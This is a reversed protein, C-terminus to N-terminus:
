RPLYLISIKLVQNKVVPALKRTCVLSKVYWLVFYDRLTGDSLRPAWNVLQEVFENNMLGMLIELDVRGFKGHPTTVSPRNHRWYFTLLAWFVNKASCYNEYYFTNIQFQCTDSMWVSSTDFIFAGFGLCCSNGKLQYCISLHYKNQIPSKM